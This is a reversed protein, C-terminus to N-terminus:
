GRRVWQSLNRPGEMRKLLPEYRDLLECIRALMREIREIREDTDV